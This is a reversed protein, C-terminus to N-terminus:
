IEQENKAISVKKLNNLISNTKIYAELEKAGNKAFRVSAKSFLQLCVEPYM